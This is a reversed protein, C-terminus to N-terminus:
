RGDDAGKALAQYQAETTDFGAHYDPRSPLASDPHVQGGGPVPAVPGELVALLSDLAIETRLTLSAGAGSLPLRSALRVLAVNLATYDEPRLCYGEHLVSKDCNAFARHSAQLVLLLARLIPASM